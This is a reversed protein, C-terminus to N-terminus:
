VCCHSIYFLIKPRSKKECLNSEIRKINGMTVNQTPEFNVSSQFFKKRVGKYFVRNLIVRGARIHNLVLHKESHVFAEVLRDILNM